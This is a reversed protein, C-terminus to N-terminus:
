QVGGWVRMTGDWSGSALTQGDPSFAVSVVGDEHGNLTAKETPPDTTMDWLRVTDDSSGSALMQGDPSFAVSLVGGEHATLTAKETPPNTTMDWVRM